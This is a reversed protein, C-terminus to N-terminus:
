FPLFTCKGPNLFNCILYILGKALLAIAVGILAYIVRNLANQMKGSDGGSTVYTFGAAILMIAAIAIVIGFFWNTAQDLLAWLDFKITPAYPEYTSEGKVVILPLLFLILSVILYKKM